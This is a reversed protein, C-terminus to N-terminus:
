VRAGVKAAPVASEFSRRGDAICRSALDAAKSRLAQLSPPTVDNAVDVAVEDRLSLGRALTQVAIRASRHRLKESTSTGFSEATFRALVALLEAKSEDTMPGSSGVRQISSLVFVSLIAFTVAVSGPLALALFSPGEALGFAATVRWVCFSAILMGVGATMIRNRWRRAGIYLRVSWDEESTHQIAPAM